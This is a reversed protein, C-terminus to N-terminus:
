DIPPSLGRLERVEKPPVYVLPLDNDDGHAIVYYALRKVLKKADIKDTKNNGNKFKNM